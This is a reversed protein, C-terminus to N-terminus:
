ATSDPSRTGPPTQADRISLERVLLTVQRNVARLRAYVWVFGASGALVACYLILDTGRRIGVRQAVLTTANPELMAAAAVIWVACSILSAFRRGRTRILTRASAAFLGAIVTLGIYQFANM